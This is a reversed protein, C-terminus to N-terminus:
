ENKLTKSMQRQSQSEENAVWKKGGSKWSRFRKSKSKAQSSPKMKRCVETWHCKRSVARSSGYFSIGTATVFSFNCGSGFAGLAIGIARLELPATSNVSSIKAQIVLRGSGRWSSRILTVFDRMIQGPFNQSHAWLVSSILQRDYLKVPGRRRSSGPSWRQDSPFAPLLYISASRISDFRLRQFVSFLSPWVFMKMFRGAILVERKRLPMKTCLKETMEVTFSLRRSSTLHDVILVLHWVGEHNAFIEVLRTQQVSLKVFMELQGAVESGSVRSQEVRREGQRDTLWDNTIRSHM